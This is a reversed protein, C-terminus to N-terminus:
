GAAISVADFLATSGGVGVGVFQITHSGATVTFPGTSYLAYSTGTPTITGVTQGDIKVQITSNSPFNGRQAAEFSITYSGAAVNVVQSVTGGNQMWAVQTGQPANPNGSTVPGGNSALGAAGAFTWPSGTPDVQFGAAAVNPTEFGPDSPGSLM